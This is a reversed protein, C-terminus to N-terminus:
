DRIRGEKTALMLDDFYKDAEEKTIKGSREDKELQAISAQTWIIKDDDTPTTTTQTTSPAVMAAKKKKKAKALAAKKADEAIKAPDEEDAAVTATDGEKLYLKFLKSMRDGDWNKNANDLVDGYTFMGSPDTEGLFALFEEDKGAMLARWDGEVLSDITVAVDNRSSESSDKEIKDVKDAVPKVSSELATSVNVQFIDEILNILDPDTDERADEIRKRVADLTDVNTPEETDDKPTMLSFFKKKLDSLDRQLTPVEKKYKGNLSDYRAKWTPEEDEDTDSEDAAASDDEEEEDDDGGTEDDDSSTDTEDDDDDGGAADEDEGPLKGNKQIQELLEQADDADQQVQKPIKVAM